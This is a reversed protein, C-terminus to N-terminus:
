KAQEAKVASSRGLWRSAAVMFLGIGVFAVLLVVSNFLVRPYGLRGVDLFPYPYRSSLAGRILIFSFYAVPYILWLMISQWRLTVKPALFLWYAAYMVPVVDHLIIDAIKQLGEPDWLNRLLLSYVLGVFSIYITTGATVVPRSFFHGLRSKPAWLLVTLGLTVMLNTLITFFSFYTIVAGFVSMGNSLSTGITLPFQLLLALWGATACVAMYARKMAARPGEGNM